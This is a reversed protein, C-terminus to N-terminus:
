SRSGHGAPWLSVVTPRPRTQASRPRCRPVQPAAPRPLFLVSAIHKAASPTYSKCIALRLAHLNLIMFYFDHDTPRSRLGSLPPQRNPRGAFPRARQWSAVAGVSHAVAGVWYAVAGVLVCWVAAGVRLLDPTWIPSSSDTIYTDPSTETEANSRTTLESLLVHRTERYGIGISTM